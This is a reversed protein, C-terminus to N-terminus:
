LDVKRLEYTDEVAKYYNPSNEPESANLITVIKDAYFKVLGTAVLHEPVYDRDFNDVCIIKM